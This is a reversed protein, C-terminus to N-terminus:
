ASRLSEDSFFLKMSVVTIVASLMITALGLSLGIMNVSFKSALIFLVLGLIILRAYFKIFFGVKGARSVAGSQEGAISVNHLLKEIDGKLLLFNVNILAGGILVSLAFNKDILLWSGLTFIVLILYSVIMINRVMRVRPDMRSKELKAKSEMQLKKPCNGYIKLALM